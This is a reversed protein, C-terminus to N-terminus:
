RVPASEHWNPEPLFMAENEIRKAEILNGMAELISSKLLLSDRSESYLALSKNVNDLAMVDNETVHLAMALNHYGKQYTNDIIITQSFHKIAQKYDGMQAFVVGLDDHAEANSPNIKIAMKLDQLANEKEGKWLYRVGRKTLARSDNPNRKIYVSLDDIGEQIYGLRGQAMGRGFWAADLSGDLKIATSFDDVASDFDHTLFYLEGRNLFLKADNRNRVIKQSLTEIQNQAQEGTIEAHASSVMFILHSLFLPILALMRM